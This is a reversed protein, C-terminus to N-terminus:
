YTHLTQGMRTEYFLALVGRCLILVEQCHGAVERFHGPCTLSIDRFRFHGLFTESIDACFCRCLKRQEKKFTYSVLIVTHVTRAKCLCLLCISSLAQEIWTRARTLILITGSLATDTQPYVSSFFFCPLCCCPVSHTLTCIDIDM